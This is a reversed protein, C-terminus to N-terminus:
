GKNMRIVVRRNKSRELVNQNSAIHRKEGYGEIQVRNAEVGADSFFTKIMNARKKSLQENNWRGGYSDTYADVLVLELEVDQKLYEAIMGLRKQSSKSLEASNKQYTLVTFAIDDFSYPLLNDMCVLFDDYARHFNAANIGVSIHDFDSYHDKYYFTPQYGKELESLMTWAAKDALEGDFEKLLQMQTIHKSAVGPKFSPPISEVKAFRYDSPLRLMDLNFHINTLNSAQSSFIAKGYRPVAHELQCSLRAQKSVQWQSNDITAVYRRIDAHSPLTISICIFLLIKKLM